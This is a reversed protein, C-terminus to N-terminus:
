RRPGTTTRRSDRSAAARRAGALLAVGAAVLAGTAPEPIPPLSPMHPEYSEPLLAEFGPFAGGFTESRLTVAPADLAGAGAVRAALALSPTAEAGFALLTMAQVEGHGPDIRNGVQTASIQMQGYIDLIFNLHVTDGVEADLILPDLEQQSAGAAPTQFGDEAYAGLRGPIFAEEYAYLRSLAWGGDAGASGIWAALSRIEVRVPSGAPLTESTVELTDSFTISVKAYPTLAGGQVESDAKTWIAANVFGGELDGAASALAHMSGVWGSYHLNAVPTAFPTFFPIPLIQETPGTTGPLWMSVKVEGTAIAQAGPAALALLLAGTLLCRLTPLRLDM